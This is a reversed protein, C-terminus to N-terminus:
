KLSHYWAFFCDVLDLRNLDKKLWTNIKQRPASMYKTKLNLCTIRKMRKDLVTTVHMFAALWTLDKMTKKWDLKIGSVHEKM